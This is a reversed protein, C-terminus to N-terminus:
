AARREHIPSSGPNHLLRRVALAMMLRAMGAMFLSIGVLTGLFWLSSAPWRNWITFGLFLAVVGNVLMWVSGGIKRNSFWAVIDATGTACFIIALVLTLGALELLPHAVLYVGAMVYFAAVLLKWALHGIGKSQVAHIFQVLGGIFVLWGIIFAAGISSVIPSAIAACGVVMLLISWIISWTIVRKSAAEPLEPM